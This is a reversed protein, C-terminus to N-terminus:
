YIEQMTEYVSHWSLWQNRNGDRDALSQWIARLLIAKANHIQNSINLYPLPTTPGAFIQPDLHEWRQQCFQDNNIKMTWILWTLTSQRSMQIIYARKCHQFSSNPKGLYCKNVKWSFLITFQSTCTINRKRKIKQLAATNHYKQGAQANWTFTAKTTLM